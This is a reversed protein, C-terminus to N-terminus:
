TRKISETLNELKEKWFLQYKSLWTAVRILNAPELSCIIQRGSRKISILGTEHLVRIHKSIAPGSMSYPQALEGVTRPGKVLEDVMGRRVSSSIAYLLRDLETNEYKVM